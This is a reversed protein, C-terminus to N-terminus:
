LNDFERADVREFTLLGFQTEPLIGSFFRGPPAMHFGGRRSEERTLALLDGQTTWTDEDLWTIELPTMEDEWTLAIYLTEEEVYYAAASIALMDLRIGANGNMKQIVNMADPVILIDMKGDIYIMLYLLCPLDPQSFVSDPLQWKLNLQDFQQTPISLKAKWTGFVCKSQKTTFRPDTIIREGRTLGCVDCTMPEETTPMSWPHADSVTGRTVGCDKCFEPAICTAPFWYHGRPAGRDQGCVACIEPTECTEELWEHDGTTGFTIGCGSCTQPALCTADQWTHSLKEGETVGCICCTKPAACSAAMWDHGIAKGTTKGCKLCTKPTVCSANQWQHSFCCGGFICLCAILLILCIGRKKM